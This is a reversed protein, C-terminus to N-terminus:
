LPRRDSPHQRPRDYRRMSRAPRHAQGSRGEEHRVGIWEIRSRRIADAMPNLSDGILGFLHRVGIQELVGVLVDAVTQSMQREQPNDEGGAQANLDLGNMGISEDISSQRRCRQRVSGLSVMCPWSRVARNNCIGIERVMYKSNPRAVSVIEDRRRNITPGFVVKPINDLNTADPTL